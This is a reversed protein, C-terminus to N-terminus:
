CTASRLTRPPGICFSLFLAEGATGNVRETEGVVRPMERGIFEVLRDLSLQAYQNVTAGGLGPLFLNAEDVSRRVTALASEM